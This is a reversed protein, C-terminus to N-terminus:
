STVGRPVTSRDGVLLNRAWADRQAAYRQPLVGGSLAAAADLAHVAQRYDGLRADQGALELALALADDHDEAPARPARRAVRDVLPEDTLAVPRATALFPALYRGAVKGPPWWLARGSVQGAPGVARAEAGAAQGSETLEARLYLPAGGTLLLGRLVPRFPAPAALAGLDAAIAEAVADAQQAALGGQKVPFATADGAAFVHDVGEVRGHRDVRLFGGDDAPLGAIRPGEQVPLAVVADAQLSEADHLLLRGDRLERPAGTVLEVDREALMRAISTAAADGFLALPAREPTVVTIRAGTASSARLEVAAMIALEYAPLTWAIGDPVAIVLRRLEGRQMADLIRELEPVADPGTFTLAGPVATRARAGVAVVLTDYSLAGDIDVFAVRGDPKVAALVGRRVAIGLRQQITALPIGAPAGFGFPAAVTAARPAFDPRPALLTVHVHRGALPRLALVAEIAAVGGGAVLVHHRGPKLSPSM